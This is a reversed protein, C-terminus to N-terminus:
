TKSTLFNYGKEIIRNADELSGNIIFDFLGIIVSSFAWVIWGTLIFPLFIIRLIINM